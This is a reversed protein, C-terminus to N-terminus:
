SLRIIEQGHELRVRGYTLSLTHENAQHENAQQSSTHRRRLGLRSTRKGPDAVHQFTQRLAHIRGDDLDESAAKHLRFFCGYRARCFAAAGPHDDIRFTVDHRIGM